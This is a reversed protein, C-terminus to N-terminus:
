DQMTPAAAIAATLEDRLVEAVHAPLGVYMQEGNPTIITLRISDRRATATIGYPPRSTRIEVHRM